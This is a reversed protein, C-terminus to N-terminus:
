RHFDTYPISVSWLGEFLAYMTQHIERSDLRIASQEGTSTIFLVSEDYLIVVSSFLGTVADPMYRPNRLDRERATLPRGAPGREWLTRAQISRAHRKKLYYMAYEEDTQSFYNNRPAIINWRHTRCYLAEDIATRVAEDGEYHTCLSDVSLSEQNKTEPLLSTLEPVLAQREELVAINRALLRSLTSPPEMHYLTRNGQRKTSVLGKHKLTDLAHYTTTRGICAQTALEQASSFAVRLGCRYLTAETHTLGLQQLLSLLASHKPSM